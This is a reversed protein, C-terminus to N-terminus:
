EYSLKLTLRQKENVQISVTEHRNYQHNSVEYNLVELGSHSLIDTVKSLLRAGITEHEPTIITTVVATIMEPEITM